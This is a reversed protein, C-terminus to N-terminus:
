VMPCIKKRNNGTLVTKIQNWCPNSHSLIPQNDGQKNEEQNGKIIADALGRWTNAETNPWAM